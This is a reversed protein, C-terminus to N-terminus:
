PKFYKAKKNGGSLLVAVLDRLEEPNLGDVLGEPMQSVKSEKLVKVEDRDFVLADAGLDRPYVVYQDGEEVVIGEAINGDHDMLLQSGYQDSIALSPEIVCELLDRLAFKNGVTSLDPGIAGGRGAFMHCTSCSTAHYLNVGAAFDRGTLHGEVAAVAEDTTWKRGPGKPPTVGEPPGAVLSLGLLEALSQREKVTLKDAADARMNELFGPYSAGGSHAAAENLFAFYERRLEPTWGQEANRLIFAVEMGRIPPRDTIMAKIPPGYRDNRDLLEAWLPLDEDGRPARVMEMGFTVARPEGLYTLLRAVEVDVLAGSGSGSPGGAAAELLRRSLGAGTGRDPSGQRAMAVAFARLLTLRNADALGADWLELGRAM